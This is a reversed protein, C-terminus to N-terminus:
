ILREDNRVVVKIADEIRERTYKLGTQLDKMAFTHTHILKADFRKQAMLAMARHCASKGEGRTAYIYANNRVLNAIDVEVPKSPFAALGIKGGRRIMSSADNVANPAGSCDLVYHAGIGETLEKVVKVADDNKVNIVHSAGLKKGIDLRNDRTGTLIVEAGLASAVGVACLGIPGPGMVVVTQGAFLGGMVDLTYMSTGATVALTAEEDSMGDPVKVLTRTRNTMYEAFAGDTTFGNAKHGKSAFGYNLCSTYWGKVCMECRACGAHIEVAVRQGIKFDDVAAGLKVVRGMAEHGPSYNKNFPAQGEIQAPKGHSIIELDTACIAVADIKLLVEDDKPEPVPKKKIEIHDPDNLVWAGMEKPVDLQNHGMMTSDNKPQM